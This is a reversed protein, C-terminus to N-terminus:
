RSKRSAESKWATTRSIAESTVSRRPPSSKGASSSSPACVFFGYRHQRNCSKRATFGREGDKVPLPNPHPAAAREFKSGGRVDPRRCAELM